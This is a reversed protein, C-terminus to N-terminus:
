SCASFTKFLPFESSCRYSTCSLKRLSSTWIHVVVNTFLLVKFLDVIKAFRGAAPNTWGVRMVELTGRLVRMPVAGSKLFEEVTCLRKIGQCVGWFFAQSRSIAVMLLAAICAFRVRLLNRKLTQPQPGPSRLTCGVAFPHTARPPSIGYHPNHYIPTQQPTGIKHFAGNQSDVM